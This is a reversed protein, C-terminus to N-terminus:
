NNNILEKWFSEPLHINPIEICEKFLPAIQAPTYKALGCGIQTVFYVYDTREKAEKIFGEVFYQIIDLPLVEMQIGKTPIAFSGYNTYKKLTFGYGQKFRTWGEEFAKRAAGAGHIGCLNTGMVFIEYDKLETINEPTIRKSYDLTNLNKKEMYM